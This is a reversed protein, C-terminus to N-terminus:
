TPAPPWPRRRPGAARCGPRGHRRSRRSGRAAAPAAAPGPRRGTTSGASSRRGRRPPARAAALATRPGGLHGVDLRLQELHVGIGREVLLGLQQGLAAPGVVGLRGHLQGGCQEAVLGAGRRVHDVQAVVAVSGNRGSSATISTGARTSADPTRACGISAARATTRRAPRRPSPTRAGPGPRRAARRSRAPTRRGARGGAQRAPRGPAVPEVSRSIACLRSCRGHAHAHCSARDQGDVGPVALGVDRDDRAVAPQEPGGRPPDNWDAGPPHPPRPPPDPAAPRGPGPPRRASPSPSGAGTRTGPWHRGATRARPAPPGRDRSPAPRGRALDDVVGERQEPGPEVLPRPTATMQPAPMLQM